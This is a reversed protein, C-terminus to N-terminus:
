LDILKGAYFYDIWFREAAFQEALISSENLASVFLFHKASGLTTFSM